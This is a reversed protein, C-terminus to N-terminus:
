LSVPPGNLFMERQDRKQPAFSRNLSEKSEVEEETGLSKILACPFRVHKIWGKQFIAQRSRDHWQPNSANGDSCM